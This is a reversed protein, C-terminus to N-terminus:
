EAGEWSRIIDRVEGPKSLWTGLGIPPIFTLPYKATQMDGGTFVTAAHRIQETATEPLTSYLNLVIVFALGIVFFSGFIRNITSQNM